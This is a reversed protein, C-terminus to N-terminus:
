IERKDQIFCMRAIEFKPKGKLRVARARILDATHEMVRECSSSSNFRQTTTVDFRHVKTGIWVSLIIAFTIM